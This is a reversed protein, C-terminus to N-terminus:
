TATWGGDVAISQGHIYSAKDSALFAVVEAIESTDGTRRLPVTRDLFGQSVGVGADMDPAIEGLVEASTARISTQIVGPCVANVTVGYKGLDVALRKTLGILGFKSATYALGDASGRLGGVSSINIIRGSRQAIMWKSAEKCTYFCGTLNIDIIKQWLECSTDEIGAYGDFVGAANVVVDIKNLNSSAKQFLREVQNVQSVDAVVGDAIGVERAELVAQHLRDESVDSLFVSYGERTLTLAISKGIGSGAGTVVAIKGNSMSMDRRELIGGDLKKMM